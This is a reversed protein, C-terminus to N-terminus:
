MLKSGILTKNGQHNSALWRMKQDIINSSNENYTSPPFPIKADCIMIPAQITLASGGGAMVNLFGALGGVIALIIFTVPELFPM